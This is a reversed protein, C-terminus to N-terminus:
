DLENGGQVTELAEPQLSLQRAPNAGAPFLVGKVACQSIRALSRFITNASAQEFVQTLRNPPIEITITTSREERIDFVFCTTLCLLQM